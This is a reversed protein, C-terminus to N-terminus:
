RMNIQFSRKVIRNLPRKQLVVGHTTGVFLYLESYETYFVRCFTESYRPLRNITGQTFCIAYVCEDYGTIIYQM